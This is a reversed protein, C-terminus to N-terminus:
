NKNTVITVLFTQSSPFFFNVVRCCQQKLTIQLILYSARSIVIFIRMNSLEWIPFSCCFVLQKHLVCTWMCNLIHITSQIVFNNLFFNKKFVTNWSVQHLKPKCRYNVLYIINVLFTHFIKSPPIYSVDYFAHFFIDPQQLYPTTSRLPQPLRFLYM